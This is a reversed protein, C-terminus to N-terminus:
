KAKILLLTQKHGSASIQSKTSSTKPYLINSKRVFIQESISLRYCHDNM